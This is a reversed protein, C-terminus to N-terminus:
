VKDYMSQQEDLLEPKIIPEAPRTKLLIDLVKSFMEREKKKSIDETGVLNIKFKRYDM